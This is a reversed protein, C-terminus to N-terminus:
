GASRGLCRSGNVSRSAANKVAVNKASETGLVKSQCYGYMLYMRHTAGVYPVYMRVYVVTFEAEANGISVFLM